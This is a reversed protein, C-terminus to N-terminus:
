RRVVEGSMKRKPWPRKRGTIGLHKIRVAYVKAKEAVDSKTYEAHCEACLAIIKSERNEGSNILAPRHDFQPKLKPGLKRTCELCKCNQRDLIRLKVRPPIESEPKAGRWEPVERGSM